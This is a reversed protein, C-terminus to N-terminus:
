ISGRESASKRQELYRRYSEKAEEPADERLVYGFGDEKEKIWEEKSM